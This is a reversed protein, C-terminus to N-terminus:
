FLNVAEAYRQQWPIRHLIRHKIRSLSFSVKNNAQQAAAEREEGRRRGWQRRPPGRCYTSHTSVDRAAVRKQKTNFDCPYNLIGVLRDELLAWMSDYKTFLREKAGGMSSAKNWPLQYQVAWEHCGDNCFRVGGNLGALIIASNNEVTRNESLDQKCMRQSKCIGNECDSM